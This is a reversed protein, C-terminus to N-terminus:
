ASTRRDNVNLSCFWFLLLCSYSATEVRMKDFTSINNELLCKLTSAQFIQGVPFTPSFSYPTRQVNLARTLVWEEKEVEVTDMAFLQDRGKGVLCFQRGGPWRNSSEIDLFRSIRWGSIEIDELRTMETRFEMEGSMVNRFINPTVITRLENQILEGLKCCGVVEIVM